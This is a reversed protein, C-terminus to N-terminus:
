FLGGLGGLVGGIGDLIAPAAGLAAQLADGGVSGVVEGMDGAVGGVAEVADGMGGGVDSLIGPAVDGITGAVDGVAEGVSALAGPAADGIAAGVDGLADGVTGVADGLTDGIGDFDVGETVGAAWDYAGEAGSAIGDGIGELGDTNPMLSGFDVGNEFLDPVLMSPELDTTMFVATAAAVGAVSAVALAGCVYLGTPTQQKAPAEVEATGQPSSPTSPAQPKAAPPPFACGSSQLTPVLDKVTACGPVTAPMGLTHFHWPGDAGVKYLKSFVLANGKLGAGALQMRALEQNTDANVLRVYADALQAFDAGSTYINATFALCDVNSQVKPLWVYIREMDVLKADKDAGLLVDGTHVISQDNNRLKTFSVTEVVHGRAFALCSADVDITEDQVKNTWGIGLFVRELSKAAQMAQGPQLMLVQVEGNGQKVPIAVDEAAKLKARDGLSVGKAKLEEDLEGRLAKDLKFFDSRSCIGAQQLASITAPIDQVGLGTLFDRLDPNEQPVTVPPDKAPVVNIQVPAKPNSSCVKEHAACADFEAFGQSCFQCKWVASQSASAGCGM